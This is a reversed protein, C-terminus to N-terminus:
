RSLCTIIYVYNSTMIAQEIFWNDIAYSSSELHNISQSARLTSSLMLDNDSAWHKMCLSVYMTCLGRRTSLDQQSFNPSIYDQLLYAYDIFSWFSLYMMTWLKLNHSNLLNPTIVDLGSTFLLTWCTLAVKPWFITATQTFQLTKWPRWNAIQKGNM